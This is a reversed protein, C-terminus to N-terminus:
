PLNDQTGRLSGPYVSMTILRSMGIVPIVEWLLPWIKRQTFNNEWSLLYAMKETEERNMEWKETLMTDPCRYGM